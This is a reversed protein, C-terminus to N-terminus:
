HGDGPGVWVYGSHNADTGIYYRCTGSGSTCGSYDNAHPQRASIVRNLCQSTDLPNWMTCTCTYNSAYVNPATGLNIATTYWKGDGKTYSGYKRFAPHNPPTCLNGQQDENPDVAFAVGVVLLCAAILSLAVLSLRVLKLM